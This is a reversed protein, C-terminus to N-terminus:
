LKAKWWGYLKQYEQGEGKRAEEDAKRIAGEREADKGARVEVEKGTEVQLLKHSPRKVRSHRRQHGM